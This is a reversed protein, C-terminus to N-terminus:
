GGAHLLEAVISHFGTTVATQLLNADPEADDLSLLPKGFRLWDQLDFLKGKRICDLLSDLNDALVARRDGM